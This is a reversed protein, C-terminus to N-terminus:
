NFQFIFGYKLLFENWVFRWAPEGGSVLELDNTKTMNHQVSHTIDYSHSYYFNSSLDISQFTKHYRQENPSVAFSSEPVLPVTETEEIKYVFHYGITAVKRRKTVLIMSYGELFRVFGLLGFASLRRNFGILFGCFIM